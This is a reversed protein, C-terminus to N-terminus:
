RAVLLKDQVGDGIQIYWCTPQAAFRIHNGFLEEGKSSLAIGFIKTSFMDVGIM